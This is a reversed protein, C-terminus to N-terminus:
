DDIHYQACTCAASDSTNSKTKYKTNQVKYLLDKKHGFYIQWMTQVTYM